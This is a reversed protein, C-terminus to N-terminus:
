LRMIGNLTRLLNVAMGTEIPNIFCLRFNQIIFLIRLQYRTAEILHRRFSNVQFHPAFVDVNKLRNIAVVVMAFFQINKQYLQVDRNKM